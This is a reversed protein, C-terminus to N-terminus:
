QELFIYEIIVGTLDERSDIEIEFGTLDPWSEAHTFLVDKRKYGGGYPANRYVEFKSTIPIALFAANFVVTITHEHTSDDLDTLYAKEDHAAFGGETTTFVSTATKNYVYNPTSNGYYNTNVKKRTITVDIAM